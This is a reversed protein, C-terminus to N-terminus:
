YYPYIDLSKIDTKPFGFYWDCDYKSDIERFIAERYKPAKGNIVCLRSM